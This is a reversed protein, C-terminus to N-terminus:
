EKFGFKNFVASVTSSRMSYIYGRYRYNVTEDEPQLRDRHMKIRELIAKYFGFSFNENKTMLPEMLFWLAAQLKKLVEVNTFDDYEQFHTLIPVAFLLAYDPLVSRLQQSLFDVGGGSQSLMISKAYDKRKGIDYALYSKAAAKIKKDTELGYLAFFGMFDLPLSKSINHRGFGRHLKGLFKERM